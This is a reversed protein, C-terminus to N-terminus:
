CDRPTPQAPAEASGDGGEAGLRLRGEGVHVAHGAVLVGDLQAASGDARAWLQSPRGIAAGQSIQLWTGFPALGHRCLHVALPGAASGTAPDEAVGLGPAFMRTVWNGGARAACSVGLPGLGALAGLDPALAMVQDEDELVVLVHQPGNVYLEVPLVARRVGLAGLLEAARDFPGNTPLPQAMTARPAHGASESVTLAVQGAGTELVVRGSDLAAAVLVGAGIVPHGAFPLEAAPTFIRVRADGDERADLLFVSESLNLERAAAQMTQTALGRGDTFVALPNGQMPTDTFVDLLRYRRLREASAALPAIREDM